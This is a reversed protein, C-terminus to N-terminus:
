DGGPDDDTLTMLYAVLGDIEDPSLRDQYIPLMQDARYGEVAYASPDLISQRLYEEASLGPVRDAARTAVGALSPGVIDVGRETSHCIQCDGRDPDDFVKRGLSVGPPPPVDRAEVVFRRGAALPVSGDHLVVEHGGDVLVVRVDASGPDTTADVVGRAAGRWSPLTQEAAVEGDVEIRVTTSGGGGAAAPQGVLQAGPVHHVSVRVGAREEAGGYPALTAAGVVAVSALM